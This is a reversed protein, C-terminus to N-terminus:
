RQVDIWFVPNGQVKFRLEVCPQSASRWMKVDGYGIAGTADDRDLALEGLVQLTGSGALGTERRRIEGLGVAALFCVVQGGALREGFLQPNFFETATPLSELVQVRPLKELVSKPQSRFQPVLETEVVQVVVPRPILYFRVPPFDVEEVIPHPVLDPELRETVLLCELFEPIGAM